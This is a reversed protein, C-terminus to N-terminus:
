KELYQTLASALKQFVRPIIQMVVSGAGRSLLAGFEGSASLGTWDLDGELTLRTGSGGMAPEFRTSGECRVGGVDYHPVIVWTCIQEMDRWTATDTWTLMEPTVHRAIATPLKPAARWVNVVRVVGDEQTTREETRVSDVDDLLKAVDTLDDRMAIWTANVSHRILAVSKFKM